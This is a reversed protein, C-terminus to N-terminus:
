RVKKIIIEKGKDQVQYGLDKLLQLFKPRCSPCDLFSGSFHNHSRKLENLIDEFKNIEIFKSGCDVCFYADGAHKINHEHHQPSSSQKLQAQLQSIAQKLAELEKKIDEPASM